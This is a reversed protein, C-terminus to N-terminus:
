GSLCHVERDQLDDHMDAVAVCATDDAMVVEVEDGIWQVICQQLM